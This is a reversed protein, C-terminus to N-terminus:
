GAKPGAARHEACCYARGAEDRLAESAPLHLGCHTCDVMPEAKAIVPARSPAAPRLPPPAPRARKRFIWWGAVLLVVWVLVRLFM